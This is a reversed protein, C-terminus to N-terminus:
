ESLTYKLKKRENEQYIKEEFMRNTNRSIKTQHFKHTSSILLKQQVHM